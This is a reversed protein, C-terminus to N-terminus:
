QTSSHTWIQSINHTFDFLETNTLTQSSIQAPPRAAISKISSRSSRGNTHSTDSNTLLGLNTWTSKRKLQRRKLTNLPRASHRAGPLFSSQQKVGNWQTLIPVTSCYRRNSLNRKGATSIIQQFRDFEYSSTTRQQRDHSASSSLRFWMRIYWVIQISPWDIQALSSLHSWTHFLHEVSTVSKSPPIFCENILTFPRPLFKRADKSNFLM